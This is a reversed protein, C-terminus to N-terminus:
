TKVWHVTIKTPDPHRRSTRSHDRVVARRRSAIIEWKTGGTKRWHYTDGAVVRRPNRAWPEFRTVRFGLRMTVARIRAHHKRFEFKGGPLIRAYTRHVQGEDHPRSARSASRSADVWHVTVEIPFPDNRSPNRIVARHRSAVVHWELDSASRHCTCYVAKGPAEVHLRQHGYRITVARIRAHKREFKYRGGPAVEVKTAHVEASAPGALGALAVLGLAVAIGLYRCVPARWHGM